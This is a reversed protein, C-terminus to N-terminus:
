RDSLGPYAQPRGSVCVLFHHLFNLIHVQKSSTCGNALEEDKQFGDFDDNYLDRVKVTVMTGVHSWIYGPFVVRFLVCKGYLCDHELEMAKLAKM